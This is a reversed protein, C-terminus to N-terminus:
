PARRARLENRIKEYDKIKTFWSGRDSLNDSYTINKFVREMITDTECGPYYITKIKYLAKVRRLFEEKTLQNVM